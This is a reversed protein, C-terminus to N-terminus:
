NNALYSKALKKELRFAQREWPQKSYGKYPNYEVGRWVAVFEEGCESVSYRLLNRNAMQWVHVLEHMLTELFDAKTKVAASNIQITFSKAHYSTLSNHYAMGYSNDTAPFKQIRIYVVSNAKKRDSIWLEESFTYRAASYALARQWKTGGIVRIRM